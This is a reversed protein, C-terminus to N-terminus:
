KDLALKEELEARDKSDEEDAQAIEKEVEDQVDM